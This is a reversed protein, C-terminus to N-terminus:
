FRGTVGLSLMYLDGRINDDLPLIFAFYPEVHESPLSLKVALTHLWKDSTSAPSGADSSLSGLNASELTLDVPGAHVGAGVNLRLFMESDGNDPFIVDLGIDMRAFLMDSDILASVSPRISTANPVAQTLVDTLRGMGGLVNAASGMSDDSATPVSVGFRGIVSFMDGLELVHYLGLELNGIGAEDGANELILFNFPLDIYAGIWKYYFQGYLETRLVFSDGDDPITFGLELTGQRQNTQRDLTAFDALCFSSSLVVLLGALLGIMVTSKTFNTSM